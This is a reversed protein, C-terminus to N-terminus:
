AATAAPSPHLRELALRTPECRALDAVPKRLDPFLHSGLRRNLPQAKINLSAWEGAVYKARDLQAKEVLALPVFCITDPALGPMEQHIDSGEPKSAIIAALVDQWTRTM